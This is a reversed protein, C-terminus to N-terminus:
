EHRLAVMPDLSAARRSPVYSAALGVLALIATVGIFTAPDSGSIGMLFASTARGISFALALGVALGAAIVVLGKRCVLGLVDGPRAGLAMRIGIERTRQVASYSVVGYVGITALVLGLIGLSAAIGAGLQFLLMGDVGSLAQVMTQIDTVPMAPALKRVTEEVASTLAQPSAAARVQLTVLSQYHQALPAYFFPEPAGFLSGTKSNRAIGVVQIMERPADRTAFRRGIPDEKPWYRQAMSENIVAVRQSNAEDADTFGRGRLIPIRMTEFYQSAVFNDDASPKAANADGSRGEIEIPGGLEIEGAPLTTTLTASAVGPLARVRRLLETYFARGQAENYGIQHPDMTFNMVQQPDFGLDALNAKQLSRTFLGAVVLLALSGAVQVAVLVSRLLQRGGTASRTADHLMDQLNTRSARLAPALGALIGTVAAIGCAYAFVRWDFGFNMMIPLSTRLNTRGIANSAAIGLLIGTACGIAALLVSEWLLLRVLASRSAGLAARVSIERQRSAARVLLMNTMNLTALLLVLLALGLFLGALRPLPNTAPNPSMTPGLKWVHLKLGRPAETHAAALQAGVVSTTAAAQAFTVGEKLRGLVVPGPALRDTMFNAALGTELVKMGSPLYGQTDLLNFPGHFGKPAVGVITVRRGNVEAQKGVIAPDGGFRSTWYAYSLVLVPDAGPVAGESPLIFRGLEPRIGCMQFFNGTVYGIQLAQTRGDFTMGGQAFDYGAVDSFMSATGNRIDLLDPYSFGNSWHDPWEIAFYTLEGPKAVPLPRLLLWNVMSFLATNVGIGLALTLMAIVAFGRNRRLMRLSFSFDQWFNQM